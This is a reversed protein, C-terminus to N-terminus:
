GRNPIFLSGDLAYFVTEQAVKMESSISGALSSRVAFYGHTDCGALERVIVVEDLASQVSQDQINPTEVVAGLPLNLRVRLLVGTARVVLQPIENIFSVTLVRYVRFEVAQNNITAVPFLTRLEYSIWGISINVLHPRKLEVAIIGENRRGGPTAEHEVNLCIM